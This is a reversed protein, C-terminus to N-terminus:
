PKANPRRAYIAWAASERTPDKESPARYHKLVLIDFRQFLDRMEPETFYHHPMSGDIADINLKTNPEIEQGTLFEPHETSPVTLFLIGGHRLVRYTEAIAKKVRAIEGHQIVAYCLIGDFFQNEYPLSTMDCQQFPVEPLAARAIKLAKESADCGYVQFGAQLLLLTHRGTGCGLDLITKLGEQGFFAAAEIARVSPEKQVVGQEKYLSDWDKM